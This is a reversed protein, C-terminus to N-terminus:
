ASKEVPESVARRIKRVAVRDVQQPGATVKEPLQESSNLLRYVGDIEFKINDPSVSGALMQCSKKFLRCLTADLDAEKIVIHSTEVSRSGVEALEFAASNVARGEVRGRKAVPDAPEVFSIMALYSDDVAPYGKGSPEVDAILIGSDAFGKIPSIETDPYFPICHMLKGPKEGFAPM